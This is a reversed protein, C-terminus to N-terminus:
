VLLYNSPPNVPNVSLIEFVNFQTASSYCAGEGKNKEM